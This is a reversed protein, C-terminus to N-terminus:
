LHNKNSSLAKSSPCRSLCTKASVHAVLHYNMGQYIHKCGLLYLIQLGRWRARCPRSLYRKSQWTELATNRMRQAKDPCFSFFQVSLIFCPSTFWSYTPSICFQKSLPPLYLSIFISLTCMHHFLPAASLCVFFLSRSLSELGSQDLSFYSIPKGLRVSHINRQSKRCDWLLCVLLTPQSPQQGAPFMIDDQLCLQYPCVPLFRSLCPPRCSGLESLNWSPAGTPVLSHALRHTLPLAGVHM